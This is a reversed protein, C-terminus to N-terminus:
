LTIISASDAEKTILIKQRIQIILPLTYNIYYFISTYQSLVLMRSFLLLHLCLLLPSTYIYLLKPVLLTTPLESILKTIGYCM